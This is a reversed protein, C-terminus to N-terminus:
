VRANVPSVDGSGHMPNPGATTLIVIPGAGSGGSGQINISLKGDPLVAVYASSVALKMTPVTVVVM